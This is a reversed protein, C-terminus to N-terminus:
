LSNQFLICLHWLDACLESRGGVVEFTYCYLSVQFSFRSSIVPFCHHNLLIRIIVSLFNMCVDRCFSLHSKLVNLHIANLNMQTAKSM